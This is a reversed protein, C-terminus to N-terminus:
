CSGRSSKSVQAVLVQAVKGPVKAAVYSLRQPVVYGAATLKVSTQTPSLSMVETFGVATTFLQARVRPVVLPYTVASAATILGLWVLWRVSAGGLSSSRANRPLKLSALQAWLEDSM